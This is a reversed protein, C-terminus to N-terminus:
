ALRIRLAGANHYVGGVQVGATAAATDDAASVIGSLKPAELMKNALTQAAEQTVLTGSLPLIFTADGVPAFTATFRGVSRVKARLTAHTGDDTLAMSGADIRLVRENKFAENPSLTLVTADEIASTAAVAATQSEEVAAAQDEFARVTRMDGPFYRALIDRRLGNRFSM